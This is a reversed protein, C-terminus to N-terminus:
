LLGCSRTMLEAIAELNNHLRLTHTCDDNLLNTLDEEVRRRGRTGVYLCLLYLVILLDDLLVFTFM